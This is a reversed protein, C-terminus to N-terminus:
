LPIVSCSPHLMSLIGVVCLCLLRLIAHFPRGGVVISSPAWNRFFQNGFECCSHRLVASPVQGIVWISCARSCCDRSSMCHSANRDPLSSSHLHPQSHCVLAVAAGQRGTLPSKEQVRPMCIDLHVSVISGSIVVCTSVYSYIGAMSFIQRAPGGVLLLVYATLRNPWGCDM